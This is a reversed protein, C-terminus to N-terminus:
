NDETFYSKNALMYAKRELCKDQLYEFYCLKWNKQEVDM